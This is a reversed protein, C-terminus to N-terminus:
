DKILFQTLRESLHWRFVHITNRNKLVNNSDATDDMFRGLPKPPEQLSERRILSTEESGEARTIAMWSRDEEEKRENKVVLELWEKHYTQDKGLVHKRQVNNQYAGLRM